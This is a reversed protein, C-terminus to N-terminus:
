GTMSVLTNWGSRRELALVDMGLSSPVYDALRVSFQWHSASSLICLERGKCLKFCSPLVMGVVPRGMPDESTGTAFM